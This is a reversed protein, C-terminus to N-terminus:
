RCASAGVFFLLFHLVSACFIELVCALGCVYACSLRLPSLSPLCACVVRPCCPPLSGPPVHLRAHPQRPARRADLFQEPHGRARPVDHSGRQTDRDRAAHEHVQVADDAGGPPADRDRQARMRSAHAFAAAVAGSSGCLRSACRASLVGCGNSQKAKETLVILHTFNKKAAWKCIKKLEFNGALALAVRVSVAM